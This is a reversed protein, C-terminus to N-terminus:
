DLHYEKKLTILLNNSQQLLLRVDRRNAKNLAKMSYIRYNWTALESQQYPLLPPNESLLHVTNNADLMGDFILANFIKTSATRYEHILTEEVEGQRLINRISVDYKAISDAVPRNRILRFAGSNKLQQMTGDNPFFRFALSRAATVAYFYIKNTNFASSDNNLLLTLSDLRQERKTREEIIIKIRATDVTIDNVLSQIFQKERQHEITHELQYEALFGCFVALFLMLFQFLYEKWKKKEQVHGHHHVEMNPTLLKTKLTSPTAPHSQLADDKSQTPPKLNDTSAVNTDIPKQNQVETQLKENAQPLLQENKPSVAEDKQREEPINQEESM